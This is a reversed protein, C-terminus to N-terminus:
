LLLKRPDALLSVYRSVFRAADAGNIVRHDYSLDLPCVLVPQFSQGDWIPEISARSLGLIFLEPPNIIPTFGVGGIGGLNSISTSAGGIEDPRIKRQQARGALDALEDAIQWLGKRSCGRIVPVVLGRPTDVAVGIDVYKKVILSNGDASLSANFRPFEGLVRAMVKVHFALATLRVGRQEAEASLSKRFHEVAGMDARDHHTVVPILQHAATLNASALQELRSLPAQEVPGFQQHDVDWYRAGGHPMVSSETADLVDGESVTARGLSKALVDTDVGHQRAIQRVSPSASPPHSRATVRNM